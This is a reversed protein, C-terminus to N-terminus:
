GNLIVAESGSIITEVAIVMLIIGMIRQTIRLGTTGYQKTLNDATIFISYTICMVIGIIVILILKQDWNSAESSLIMVSSISGPGAIIPMGIPTYSIDEKTEAELEEKPTSRTRSVKAELMNMGMRFFLITDPHEAKIEAFQDLM